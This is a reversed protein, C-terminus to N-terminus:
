WRPQPVEFILKDQLVVAMIDEGGWGGVHGIHELYELCEGVGKFELFCTSAKMKCCSLSLTQSLLVRTVSRLRTGVM